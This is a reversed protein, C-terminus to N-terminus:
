KQQTTCTCHARQVWWSTLMAGSSMPHVSASSVREGGQRSSWSFFTPFTTGQPGSGWQCALSSLSKVACTRCLWLPTHSSGRKRQGGGPDECKIISHHQCFYPAQFYTHLWWSSGKNFDAWSYHPSQWSCPSSCANWHSPQLWFFIDLVSESNVAFCNLHCFCM